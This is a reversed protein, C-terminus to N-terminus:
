QCFREIDAEAQTKREEIEETTMFRTSGDAARLKIRSSRGIVQLDERANDCAIKAQDKPVDEGNNANAASDGDTRESSGPASLRPLAKGPNSPASQVRVNETKATIPPADGYSVNGEEDIWKKIAGAHLPMSVLLTLYILYRM